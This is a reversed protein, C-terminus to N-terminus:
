HKEQVGRAAGHGAAGTRATSDQSAWCDRVLAPGNERQLAFDLLEVFGAAADECRGARLAAVAALELYRASGRRRAAAYRLVSDALQAPADLAIQGLAQSLFEGPFPHRFTGQAAALAGDAQSAAEAWRSGRVALLSMAARIQATDAGAALADRLASAAFPKSRAAALLARMQLADAGAHRAMAVSLLSDAQATDGLALRVGATRVSWEAEDPQARRAADLYPLLGADSRRAALIRLLTFPSAGTERTGLQVLSDFVANAAAGPDLFRRAAVFELRPRDDSHGFTARAILRAVGSDGLLQRGFYEDPAEISLWERSLAQLQGGPGILQALWTRDYTIPRSSALVVLDATGGFWVNVHPFVQHLSRVIGAVIPLPLQYLQIWQCFVGDDSLRAKAIRFFEPTYLTAIGAIWPNSPESVIVDYRERDLQLASRADDVVVHVNPRSLVRDNVAHFLSDMALVAPEIEVVKVRTMGPVAALVRTTVGTGQGILFASTAGPHAVIPALGIMIQTDMDGRDSADVKGNVRLSRGTEGEWVSVTANPGERFALQRVGRHELFRRRAAQDMPQRAYITPGLDILRTSWGPAAVAALLAVTGLGGATLVRARIRRDEASGEAIGRSALVALALAAIGNVILGIRLTTQTGLAVILVFGTLVAGLISGLTNLAYAAGVDAGRAERERATLDTLLPFTMGMGIAPILVVAGVAVGMLFLRAAAGLDVVQFVAIIYSPLFGFFVFLLAAGIGTLGQALAANVATDLRPASRRAVIISGLGIGLLFVLLILTFAYTSGGVVMILVRTWAIEDLLSAFATLALLILAVNHLHDRSTPLGQDEGPKRGPDALSQERGLVIAAAGIALNIAATTWLSARVGVLEILVFGALATGIMAGLTNLGYLRGLSPKLLGRDDGMLARTLVPLTGGMLTTPILLVLAALGFRLAVSAASGLGLAGATGLYIWHALGLVLPSIIGFAGIAIELKGYLVAPRPSRDTIRGFLWAGLGLGGMYAAVVTTVSQITSGFSQYLVRVWLLEYVLGTAGSLFFLISYLLAAKSRM